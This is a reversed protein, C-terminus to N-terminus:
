KFLELYANPYDSKFPVMKDAQGVAFSQVFCIGLVVLDINIYKKM